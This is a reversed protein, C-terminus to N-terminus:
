TAENKGKLKRKMKTLVKQYARFSFVRAGDNIKKGGRRVFCVLFNKMEIKKELTKMRGIEGGFLCM